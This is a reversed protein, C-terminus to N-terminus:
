YFCFKRSLLRSFTSTCSRRRGTLRPRVISSAVLGARQSVVTRSNAAPALRNTGTDGVSLCWKNSFRGIELKLRNLSLNAHCSRFPRKRPVSKANFSSM